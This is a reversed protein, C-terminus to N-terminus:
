TAHTWGASWLVCRGEKAEVIIDQYPFETGCEADNLYIM